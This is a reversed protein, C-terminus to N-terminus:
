QHCTFMSFPKVCISIKMGASMHRRATLTLDDNASPRDVNFIVQCLEALSLISIKMETSRCAYLTCTWYVEM